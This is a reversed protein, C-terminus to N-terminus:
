INVKSLQILYKWFEEFLISVSIQGILWTFLLCLVEALTVMLTATGKIRINYVEEIQYSM